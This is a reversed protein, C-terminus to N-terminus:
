LIAAFNNIIYYSCYYNYLVYEAFNVSTYKKGVGAVNDVKKKIVYVM